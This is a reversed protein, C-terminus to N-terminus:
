RSLFRVGVRLPIHILARDIDQPGHVGLQHRHLPLGAFVASVRIKVPRKFLVRLETFPPVGELVELM